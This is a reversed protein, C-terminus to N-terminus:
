DDRKERLEPALDDGGGRHALGRKSRVPPATKAKDFGGKKTDKLRHLATERHLYLHYNEVEFCNYSINEVL